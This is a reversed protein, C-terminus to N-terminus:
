SRLQNLEYRIASRWHDRASLAAEGVNEFDSVVLGCGYQWEARWEGEDNQYSVVDFRHERIPRAIGNAWAQGVLEADRRTKLGEESPQLYDIDGLDSVSTIAWGEVDRDRWIVYYGGDPAPAVHAGVRHDENAVSLEAATWELDILSPSLTGRILTQANIPCATSSTRLLFDQEAAFHPRSSEFRWPSEGL